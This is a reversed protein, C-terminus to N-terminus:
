IMSYDEAHVMAFTEGGGVTSSSLGAAALSKKRAPRRFADVVVPQVDIIGAQAKHIAIAELALEERKERGAAVAKTWKTSYKSALFHDRGNFAGNGVRKYMDGPHLIMDLLKGKAVKRHKKNRLIERQKQKRIQAHSFGGGLNLVGFSPRKGKSQGKSRGGGSDSPAVRNGKGGKGGKGKVLEAKGKHRDAWKFLRDVVLAAREERGKRIKYVEDFSMIIIAMPFNVLLVSMLAAAGAVGRGMKTVPVIDGYGVSTFTIVTWYLCDPITDFWIDDEFNKPHQAGKEAYFIATSVLIMITVLVVCIVLIDNAIIKMAAIFDTLTQNHRTLKFVRMIRIVRLVTLVTGAGKLDGGSAEVMREIYFPTISLLDVITMPAFAHHAKAKWFQKATYPRRIQWSPRVAVFRLIYEITFWIVLFMQLYFINWYDKVDTNKTNTSCIYVTKLTVNGTEANTANKLSPTCFPDYQPYSQIIILIVSVLVLLLTIVELIYKTLGDNWIPITGWCMYRDNQTWLFRCKWGKKGGKIVVGERNHPHKSVPPQYREIQQSDGVFSMSSNQSQFDFKSGQTGSSNMTTTRRLENGSYMDAGSSASKYAPLEGTITELREVKKGIGSLGDSTESRLKATEHRLKGLSKELASLTNVLRSTVDEDSDGGGGGGKNKRSRRHKQVVGAVGSGRRASASERRHEMEEEYGTKPQEGVGEFPDHLGSGLGNQTHIAAIYAM